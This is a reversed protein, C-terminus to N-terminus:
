LILSHTAGKRSIKDSSRGSYTYRCREFALSDKAVREEVKEGNKRINYEYIVDDTDYVRKSPAFELM